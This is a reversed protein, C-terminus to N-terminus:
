NSFWFSYLDAKQLWFHLRISRGELRDLNEQGTWGVTADIADGTFPAGDEFNWGDIWDGDKVGDGSRVAVRVAGNTATTANIHLRGGPCRLPRTLMYGPGPGEAPTGLSVFGDKRITALCFNAYEGPMMEMHLVSDGRYYIFLKDDREVIGQCVFIQGWDYGTDRGYMGNELFIPREPHREWHKGDRSWFLQVDLHQEKEVRGDRWLRPGTKYGANVAYYISLFGLYLGAYPTVAFDYFFPSMDREDPELIVEPQTWQVLDASETYAFRRIEHANVTARRYQMFVDREPNYVMNVMTDNRGCLVPNEPQDRWHLGDDSWAIRDEAGHHRGPLSEERNRGYLMCFRGKAALRPPVEVVSAGTGYLFGKAGQLINNAKSGDFEVIGLEPATWHAGDESEWYSQMYSMNWKGRRTDMFRTWLRLRGLEGDDIVSGWNSDSRFGDPTTMKGGPILPNDPHKEPQHVTRFLNWTSDVVHKDLLLQHQSGVAIPPTPSIDHSGEILFHRTDFNFYPAGELAPYAPNISESM